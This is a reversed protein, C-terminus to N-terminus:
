GMLLAQGNGGVRYKSLAVVNSPLPALWLTASLLTSCPFWCLLIADSPVSGFSLEGQRLRCLAQSGCPQLACYSGLRVVLCQGYPREVKRAPPM